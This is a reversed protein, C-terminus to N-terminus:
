LLNRQGSRKFDDFPQRDSVDLFDFTLMPMADSCCLFLLRIMVTAAATMIAVIMM